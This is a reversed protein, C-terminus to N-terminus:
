LIAQGRDPHWYLIHNEHDTALFHRNYGLSAMLEHINSVDGYGDRIALDPHESLWVLPKHEKLTEISGTTVAIEGGEIDVTIADPVIGTRKVYEDITIEPITKDSDHIYRYSLGNYLEKGEAQKPWGKYVRTGKVTKDSALGPFCGKPAPLNNANWIAKTNPWYVASPEFLVMNDGGVFQAYIASQWAKESGIEYLIDGQKLNNQMSLFREREWSALVDWSALFDPLVVEYQWVHDEVPGDDSVKLVKSKIWEVKNLPVTQPEM